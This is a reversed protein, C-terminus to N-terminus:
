SFTLGGPVDDLDETLLVLPRMSFVNSVIPGETEQSHNRQYGHEHKCQKNPLAGRVQVFPPQPLLALQLRTQKAARLSSQDVAEAVSRTMCLAHM